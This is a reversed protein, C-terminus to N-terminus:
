LLRSTKAKPKLMLLHLQFRPGVFKYRGAHRAVPQLKSSNTYVTPWLWPVWIPAWFTSLAKQTMHVWSVIPKSLWANKRIEWPYLNWEVWSHSKLLFFVTCIIKRQSPFSWPFKKNWSLIPIGKWKRSICIMQQVELCLYPLTVTYEPESTWFM